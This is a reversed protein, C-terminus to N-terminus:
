RMSFMKYLKKFTQRINLADKEKKKNFSSRMRENQLVVNVSYNASFLHNCVNKSDAILQCVQQVSRNTGHSVATFSSIITIVIEGCAIM